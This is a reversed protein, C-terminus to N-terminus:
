NKSLLYEAPTNGFTKRIWFHFKHMGEGFFMMPCFGYVVEIGHQRCKEHASESYAGRGVGRIMWVRKVNTGICQDVIEATMEAPITLIVNEVDAPLEKVTACTPIGEVEDYKPNVPIGEYGKKIVETMLFKGFNDKNPSAGVIALKRSELFALITGKM